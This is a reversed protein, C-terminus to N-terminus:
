PVPLVGVLFLLSLVLAAIGLFTYHTPFVIVGALVFTLVLLAYLWYHGRSLAIYMGFWALGFPITTIAVEWM